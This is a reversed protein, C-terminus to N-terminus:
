TQKFLFNLKCLSSCLRKAEVQQPRQKNPTTLKRVYRRYCFFFFRIFQFGVSPTPSGPPTKLEAKLTLCIYSIRRHLTSSTLCTWITWAIKLHTSTRHFRSFSGYNSAKEMGCKHPPLHEQSFAAFLHSFTSLFTCLLVVCCLLASRHHECTAFSQTTQKNSLSKWCLRAWMAIAFTPAWKM